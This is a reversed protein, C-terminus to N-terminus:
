GSEDVRKPRAPTFSCESAALGPVIPIAYHASDYNCSLRYVSAGSRTGSRASHPHRTPAVRVSMTVTVLITLIRWDLWGEVRFREIAARGDDDALLRPLPHPTNRQCGRAAGQHGGCEM